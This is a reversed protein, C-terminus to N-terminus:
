DEPHGDPFLCGNFDRDPNVCKYNNFNPDPLMPNIRKAVLPYPCWPRQVSFDASIAKLQKPAQGTEIWTEMQHLVDHADVHHINVGELGAIPDRLRDIGCHNVGPALYFQVANGTTNRFRLFYDLTVNANVLNDRTGHWIIAKGGAKRFQSLDTTSKLVRGNKLNQEYTAIAAPVNLFYLDTVNQNFEDNAYPLLVSIDRSNFDYFPFDALNGLSVFDQKNGGDLRTDRLISRIYSIQKNSLDLNVQMKKLSIKCMIPQGIINDVIGDKADCSNLIYNEVRQETAVDLTPRIGANDLSFQKQRIIASRLIVQETTEGALPAGAIVGQYDNPYLEMAQVGQMGGRSCGDWISYKLPQSYFNKIITQSYTTALHNGFVDLMLNNVAATSGGVSYSHQAYDVLSGDATERLGPNGGSGGAGIMKGNWNSLPLFVRAIVTPPNAAANEVQYLVSVKCFDPSNADVIAQVDVISPQDLLTALEPYAKGYQSKIPRLDLSNRLQANSALTSNLAVKITAGDCRPDYLEHADIDILNPYYRIEMRNQSLDPYQLSSIQQTGPGFNFNSWFNVGDPRTLDASKIAGLNDVTLTKLNIGIWKSFDFADTQAQTPFINQTTLSYVGSHEDDHLLMAMCNDDWPGACGFQDQVNSKLYVISNNVNDMVRTGPFRKHDYIFIVDQGNADTITIPVTIAPVLSPDQLDLPNVGITDTGSYKKQGLEDAMIVYNWTGKPMHIVKRWLGTSGGPIHPVFEMKTADCAAFNTTCGSLATEFDGIINVSSPGDTLSYEGISLANTAVNYSILAVPVNPITLTNPVPTVTNFTGLGPNYVALQIGNYVGGGPVLSTPVKLTVTGTKTIDTMLSKFCNADANGSPCGLAQQLNGQMLVIIPTNVSDVILNTAENYYFTVPVQGTGPINLTINPGDQVGGFGYNEKWPNGYNTANLVADVIVKYQNNSGGPLTFTQVWYGDNARRILGNKAPAPVGGILCQPDWDGNCGLLTGLPSGTITVAQQPPPNNANATSVSLMMVVASVVYRKIIISKFKFNDNCMVGGRLKLTM